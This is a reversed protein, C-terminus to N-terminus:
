ELKHVGRINSEGVSAVAGLHLNGPPCEGGQIELSVRDDLLEPDDHGKGWVLGNRTDEKQHLWVPPQGKTAPLTMARLALCTVGGGSERGLSHRQM